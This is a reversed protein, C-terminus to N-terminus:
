GCRFLYILMFYSHRRSSFSGRLCVTSSLNIKEIHTACELVEAAGYYTGENAMKQDEDVAVRFNRM